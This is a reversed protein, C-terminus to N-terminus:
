EKSVAGGEKSVAGGEEKSVAGGEEKSVAGGEEKSVAGGEEKSVAGGEEKSVAGGEEWRKSPYTISEEVFTEPVSGQVDLCSFVFTVCCVLHLAIVM